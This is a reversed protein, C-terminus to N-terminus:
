QQVYVDVMRAGAAPRGTRLEKESVWLTQIRDPAVDGTALLADHVAVARQRALERSRDLSGGSDARGVVTINAAPDQSAAEGIDALTRHGEADIAASGSEFDLHYVNPEGPQSSPGSCAALFLLLAPPGAFFHKTQPLLDM